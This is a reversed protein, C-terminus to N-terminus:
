SASSIIYFSDSSNFNEELFLFCTAIYGSVINSSSNSTVMSCSILSNLANTRSITVGM